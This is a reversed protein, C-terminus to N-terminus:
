HFRNNVKYYLNFLIKYFWRPRRYRFHSMKKNGNYTHHYGVCIEFLRQGIKSKIKESLSMRFCYYDMSEEDKLEFRMYEGNVRCTGTLPLDYFDEVFIFYIEKRHKITITDLKHM